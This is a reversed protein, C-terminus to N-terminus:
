LPTVPPEFESKSATTPAHRFTPTSSCPTWHAHKYRALRILELGEVPSPRSVYVSMTEGLMSRPTHGGKSHRAMPTRYDVRSVLGGPPAGSAVGHKGAGGALSALVRLASGM